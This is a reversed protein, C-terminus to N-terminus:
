PAWAASFRLPCPSIAFASAEPLLGGVGPARIPAWRDFCWGPRAVAGLRRAVVPLPLLFPLTSPGELNPCNLADRTEDADGATGPREACASACGPPQGTSRAM